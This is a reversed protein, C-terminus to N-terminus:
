CAHRSNLIAHYLLIEISKLNVYSSRSAPFQYASLMGGGEDYFSDYGVGKTM